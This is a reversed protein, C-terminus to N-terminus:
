SQLSVLLIDELTASCNWIGVLIVSLESEEAYKGSM